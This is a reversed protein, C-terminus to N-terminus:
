QAEGEDYTILTGHHDFLMRIYGGWEEADELIITRIFTKPDTTDKIISLTATSHLIYLLEINTM